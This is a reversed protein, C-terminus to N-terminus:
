PNRRDVLVAWSQRHVRTRHNAVLPPPQGRAIERLGGGPTLLNKGSALKTIRALMAVCSRRWCNLSWQPTPLKCPLCFRLRSGANTERRAATWCTVSAVGPIAHRLVFVSNPLVAGESHENRDPRSLSRAAVFPPMPDKTSDDDKVCSKM